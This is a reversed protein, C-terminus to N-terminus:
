PGPDTKAGDGPAEGEGADGKAAAEEAALAKVADGCERVFRNAVGRQTEPSSTAFHVLVGEENKLGREAYVRHILDEDSVHAADDDGLAEEFIRNAGAVGHQVATSWVVDNLVKSRAGVDLGPIADLAERARDYYQTRV